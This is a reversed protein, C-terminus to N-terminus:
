QKRIWFTTKFTGDTDYIIYCNGRWGNQYNERVIIAQQLLFQQAKWKLRFSQVAQEREGYHRVMVTYM